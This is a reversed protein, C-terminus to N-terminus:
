YKAIANKLKQLERKVDDIKGAINLLEIEGIKEPLKKLYYFSAMKRPYTFATHAEIQELTFPYGGESDRVLNWLHLLNIKGDVLAQFRMEKKLEGDLSSLEKEIKILQEELLTM